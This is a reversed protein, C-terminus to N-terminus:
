EVRQSKDNPQRSESEGITEQEKLVFGNLLSVFRSESSPSRAAIDLCAKLKAQLHVSEKLTLPRECTQSPSIFSYKTPTKSASYQKRSRSAETDHHALRHYWTSCSTLSGITELDLSRDDLVKASTTDLESRPSQKLLSKERQQRKLRVSATEYNSLRHHWPWSGMMESVVSRDDSCKSSPSRLLSSPTKPASENDVLIKRSKSAQTDHYALRHHWTAYSTTSGVTEIALSNDDSSKGAKKETYHKPGMNLTSRPQSKENSEQFPQSSQTENSILHEREVAGYIMSFVPKDVMNRPSSTTTRKAPTMDRSERNLRSSVTEHNSLREHWSDASAVSGLITKNTISHDDTNRPSTSSSRKGPSKERKGKMLRSSVTEHYALREHWSSSTTITGITKSTASRDDSSENQLMKSLNRPPSMSSSRSVTLTKHLREYISESSERKFTKSWAMPSDPSRSQIRHNVSHENSDSTSSCVEPMRGALSVRDICSGTTMAVINDDGSASNSKDGRGEADLSDDCSKSPSKRIRVADKSALTTTRSARPLFPPSVADTTRDKWDQYHGSSVAKEPARRRSRTNSSTLTGESSDDFSCDDYSLDEASLAMPYCGGRKPNMDAENDDVDVDDDIEDLNKRGFDRADTVNCINTIENESPISNSDCRTREDFLIPIDILSINACVNSESINEMQHYNDRTANVSTKQPITTIDLTVIKDMPIDVFSVTSPQAENDSTNNQDSASDMHITKEFRVKVEANADHYILSDLYQENTHSSINNTSECQQDVVITEEESTKCIKDVVIKNSGEETSINEVGCTIDKNGSALDCPDAIETAMSINSESFILDKGYDNAGRSDLCGNALPSLRGHILNNDDEKDFIEDTQSPKKPSVIQRILEGVQNAIDEIYGPISKRNTSSDTSKDDDHMTELMLNSGCSQPESRDETVANEVQTTKEELDADSSMLSTDVIQNDVNSKEVNEPLVSQFPAAGDAEQDTPMMHHICSKLTEITEGPCDHLTM